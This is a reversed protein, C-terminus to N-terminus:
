DMRDNASRRNQPMDETQELQMRQLEEDSLPEFFGSVWWVLLGALAIVIAYETKTMKREMAIEM